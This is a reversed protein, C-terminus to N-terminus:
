RLALPRAWKMPGKPERIRRIKMHVATGHGFSRNEGFIRLEASWFKSRKLTAAGTKGVRWMLRVRENLREQEEYAALLEDTRESYRPM